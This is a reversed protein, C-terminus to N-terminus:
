TKYSRDSQEAKCYKQYCYIGKSMLSTLRQKPNATCGCLIHNWLGAIAYGSATSDRPRPFRSYVNSFEILSLKDESSYPWAEMNTLSRRGQCLCTYCVSEVLCSGEVESLKM